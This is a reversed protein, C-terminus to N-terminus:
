TWNKRMTSTIELSDPSLIGLPTLQDMNASSVTVTVVVDQNTSNETAPSTVSVSMPVNFIDALRDTVYTEAETETMLGLAVNRSAERSVHTMQDQAFFVVGAEWVGLTLMFLMPLILAFEVAATGKKDRAPRVVLQRYARFLDLRSFVPKMQVEGICRM